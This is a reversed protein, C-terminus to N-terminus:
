KGYKEVFTEFSMEMFFGNVFSWCRPDTDDDTMRGDIINTFNATVGKMTKGNVHPHGYKTWTINKCSYTKGSKTIENTNTNNKM